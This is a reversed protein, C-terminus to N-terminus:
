IEDEFYDFEDAYWEGDEECYWYWVEEEEDFSWAIGYEDYEFGDDEFVVDDEYEVVDDSEVYIVMDGVTITIM